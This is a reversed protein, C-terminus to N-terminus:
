DRLVGDVLKNWVRPAQKLGYIAKLLKIYKGRPVFDELGPTPKVFVADDMIENLFANKVDM